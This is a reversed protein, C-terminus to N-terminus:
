HGSHDMKQMVSKVPATITQQEGNDFELTFTVEEGEAVPTQVGIFMVHLGGPELKVTEGAPLEIGNELQRMRMVGDEVYGTHLEVSNAINSYAAVVRRDTEATLHMFAATMKQSPAMARVYADMVDVEAMASLSVSLALAATILKKM